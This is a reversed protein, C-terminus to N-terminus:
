ENQLTIEALGMPVLEGNYKTSKLTRPSIVKDSLMHKAKAFQNEMIVRIIEVADTTTPALAAVITKSIFGTNGGLYINANGYASFIEPYEKKFAKQLLNNLFKTYSDVCETLKEASDIGTANLLSKDIKVAFSFESGPLVCERFVSIANEKKERGLVLDIKQLLATETEDIPLADSVQLGKLTSTVANSKKIPRDKKDVLNLTNILDQELYEAIKQLNGRFSKDPRGNFCKRYLDKWYRNKVDERESLLHYIIASRIFGKISSGPIYVRGDALRIHGFVDNVTKKDSPNVVNVETSTKYIVFELIDELGYGHSKLWDLLNRRDAKTDAAMYKFYDEFLNHELIFQHWKLSNVFYITGSSPDYFYDRATLKEGNAVCSPTVIKLSMNCFLYSDNDIM